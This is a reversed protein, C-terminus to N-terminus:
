DDDFLGALKAREHLVEVYERLEIGQALSM